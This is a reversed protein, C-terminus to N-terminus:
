APPGGIAPQKPAKRAPPRVADPRPEDAAWLRLFAGVDRTCDQCLDTYAKM